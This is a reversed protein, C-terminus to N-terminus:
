RDTWVRTPVKAAQALTLCNSAGHSDHRGRDPCGVQNCRAVFALCEVVGSNVMERNRIPGAAQHYLSWKARWVEPAPLGVRLATAHAIRDAGAAGGHVLVFRGHRRWAEVLAQAITVEDTWNRSGTVLVRPQTSRDDSM